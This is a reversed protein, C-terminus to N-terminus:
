NKGCFLSWIYIYVMCFAAEALFICVAMVGYFVYGGDCWSKCHNTILICNDTTMNRPLASILPM